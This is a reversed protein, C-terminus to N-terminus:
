RQLLFTLFFNFFLASMTSKEDSYIVRM